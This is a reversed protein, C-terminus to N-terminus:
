AADCGLLPWVPRNRYGLLDASLQLNGRFNVWGIASIKSLDYLRHDLIGQDLKDTLNAFVLLGVKKATSRCKEKGDIPGFRETQHHDLRHRTSRGDNCPGIPRYWFDEFM